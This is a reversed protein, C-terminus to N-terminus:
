KEKTPPHSSDELDELIKQCGARIEDTGEPPLPECLKLTEEALSRASAYDKQALCCRALELTCQVLSHEMGAIGQLIEKVESLTREAKELRGQQFYLIGMNAKCQAQRHETGPIRILIKLAQELAQEAEELRGSDRYVHGLGGGLCKAQDLETGPIRRYINLAERYGMEAESFRGASLYGHAMNGTVVAQMYETGPIRRYIKLAEKHAKEAKSFRRTVDWVSGLNALCGALEYESGPTGRYIELAEKYVKEAEPYRSTTFFINGLYKLCSAMELVNGQIQQYIKLADQIAKEAEPFRGTRRYLGGLKLSCRAIEREERPLRRLLKLAEQYKKEADHFRCTERHVMGLNMMCQAKFLDTGPIEQSRQLAEKLPAEAMVWRGLTMFAKARHFWWEASDVVGVVPKEYTGFEEEHAALLVKKMASMDRYRKEPEPSFVKAIVKRFVEPLSNYEIKGVGDRAFSEAIDRELSAERCIPCPHSGLYSELMVLGVAFQDARHDVLNNGPEIEGDWMEWLGFVQEPAMYGSTGIVNTSFDTLKFISEGVVMINDPKIDRHSELGHKYAHLLSDCLQIGLTLVEKYNLTGKEKLYQRLNGGPVYESYVFPINRNLIPHLINELMHVSIIHPHRGMELWPLTEELFAQAIEEQLRPALDLYDPKLFSNLTKAAYIRKEENMSSEVFYVMGIGGSRLGIVKFESEGFTKGHNWPLDIGRSALDTAAAQSQEDPWRGM